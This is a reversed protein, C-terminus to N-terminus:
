MEEIWLTASGHPATREEEYQESNYESPGDPVFRVQYIPRGAALKATAAQDFGKDNWVATKPTEFYGTARCSFRQTHFKGLFDRYGILGFVWFPRQQTLFADIDSQRLGWLGGINIVHSKGAEVMTAFRTRFIPAYRPEPPLIPLASALVCEALVHASTRGHNQLHVIPASRRLVSESRGEAVLMFVSTVIFRPLEVGIAAEASLRAADASVQAARATTGIHVLEVWSVIALILTFFAIAIAMYAQVRDTWKAEDQASQSGDAAGRPKGQAASILPTAPSATPTTQMSNNPEAQKGGAQDNWTNPQQHIPRLPVPNRDVVSLGFALALIAV